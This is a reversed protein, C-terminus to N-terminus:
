TLKHFISKIKVELVCVATAKIKNSKRKTRKPRKIQAM